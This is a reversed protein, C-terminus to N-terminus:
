RRGKAERAAERQAKVRMKHEYSYFAAWEELEGAAWSEVERVRMGLDRALTFM